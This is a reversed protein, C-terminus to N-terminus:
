SAGEKPAPLAALRKQQEEYQYKDVPGAFRGPKKLLQEPQNAEDIATARARLEQAELQFRSPPSVDKWGEEALWTSPKRWYQGSPKAVAACEIILDAPAKTIAIDWAARAAPKGTKFRYASWFREFAIEAEGSATIQLGESYAVLSTSPVRELDKQFDSDEGERM